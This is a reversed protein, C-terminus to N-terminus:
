LAVLMNVYFLSKALVCVYTFCAPLFFSKSLIKRLVSLPGDYSDLVQLDELFFIFLHRSLKPDHAWVIYVIPWIQDIM